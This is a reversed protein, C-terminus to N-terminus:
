MFVVFLYKIFKEYLTYMEGVSLIYGPIVRHFFVRMM